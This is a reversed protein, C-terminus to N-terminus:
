SRWISSPSIVHSVFCLLYLKPRTLKDDASRSKAGARRSNTKCGRKDIKLRNTFTQLHFSCTYNLLKKANLTPWIIDFSTCLMNPIDKTEHFMCVSLLLPLHWDCKRPPVPVYLSPFFASVLVLSDHRQKSLFIPRDAKMVARGM